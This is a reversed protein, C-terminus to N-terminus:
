EDHDHAHDHDCTCAYELHDCTPCDELNLNLRVMTTKAEPSTKIQIVTPINEGAPLPKDSLLSGKDKAFTLRTPSTRKGCIVTIKQDTPAVAKGDGDIFTFRLKRDKTVFLEVHPEVEHLVKGENPGILDGRDQAHEAAHDHKEDDDAFALPALFLTTILFLAPKM